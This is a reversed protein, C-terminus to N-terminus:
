GPREVRAAENILLRFPLEERRELLEFVAGAYIEHNGLVAYAGDPAEFGRLGRALKGVHRPEDDVLDGAIVVMDPAAQNVREVITRLRSERTFLGVHLDSLLAIRYGDLAPPLDPLAGEVTRVELPVVAGLDSSCVDSSWDRGCRTHRRRSSFFFFCVSLGVLHFCFFMKKFIQKM